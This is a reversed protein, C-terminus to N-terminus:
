GRRARPARPASGRDRPRQSGAARGARNRFTTLAASLGGNPGITVTDLGLWGALAELEAAVATAVVGADIGAELHAAPVLLTSGKRDAKLDLRGVLQDGLLVPLVFYGYTRKPAPVYVEIRYDFGFLRSTRAREWILSDFPSLLTATTRTPRKPTTGPLLYGRERWGEVEVPLLAGDEVLERVRVKAVAPKVRYYDALDVVTGIGHSRAALLLLDRQAQEIPPTPVALVAAPIVREPVDYVREFNPTRWGALDGRAFLWELAQRGVSRRDWWEGDQRRPERLRSAPIAGTDRVEALVQAIYGRHEQAWAEYRAAAMPTDNYPQAMRWRFLPQTGMPLLSAAHGWYEFLEGGPGTLRHLLGPDYAGVRSFLLLFQTRALVNIADLQVTGVADIAARVAAPGARAPRPRGLGQAGIAM